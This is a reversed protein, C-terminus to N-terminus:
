GYSVNSLNPWQWCQVLWGRGKVALAGAYGPRPVLTQMSWRAVEQPDERSYLLAALKDPLLSVDFLNLPLSLGMGRAKIYAEKRTWCNYFAQHKQGPPLPYLSAQEFPSFSHGNM